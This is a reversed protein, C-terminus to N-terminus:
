RRRVGHAPRRPRQRWTERVRDSAGRTRPTAPRGAGVRRMAEVTGLMHNAVSRSTGDTRPQSGTDDVAVGRGRAAPEVVRPRTGLPWAAVTPVSRAFGGSGARSRIDEVQRMQRAFAGAMDSVRRARGSAIASAQAAVSPSSRSSRRSRGVGGPHVQVAAAVAWLDPQQLAPQVPEVQEGPRRDVAAVPLGRDVRDLAELAPCVDPDRPRTLRRVHFRTARSTVRRALAARPGAGVIRRGGRLRADPGPRLVGELRQAVGVPPGVDELEVHM